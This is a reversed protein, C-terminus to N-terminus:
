MSRSDIFETKRKLYEYEVVDFLILRVEDFFCDIENSYLENVIRYLDDEEYSQSIEQHIIMEISNDIHIMSRDIKSHQIVRRLSRNLRKRKVIDQDLNLVIMLHTWNLLHPDLILLYPSNLRFHELYDQDLLSIKHLLNM